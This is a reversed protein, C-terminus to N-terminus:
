PYSSIHRGLLGTAEFTNVASVKGSADVELIPKDGDYVFYTTGATAVNSSAGTFTKSARLGDPRYTATWNTGLSTM